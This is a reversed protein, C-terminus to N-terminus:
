PPTGQPRPNDRPILQDIDVATVAPLAAAREVNETPM